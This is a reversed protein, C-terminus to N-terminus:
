IKGKTSINNYVVLSKNELYVKTKYHAPKIPLDVIVLDPNVHDKVFTKPIRENTILVKKTPSYENVGQEKIFANAEKDKKYRFCVAIDNQNIGNAKLKNVWGELQESNTSSVFIITTSTNKIISVLDEFPYRRFDVDVQTEDSLTIKDYGTQKNYLEIVSDDYALCGRKRAWLVAKRVDTINSLETKDEDSLLINEVFFNDKYKLIPYYQLGEKYVKLMKEYAISVDKDISFNKGKIQKFLFDVNPENYDFTWEKTDPLYDGRKYSIRKRKKFANVLDPMFPSKCIIKEGDIYVSKTKDIVRFPNKYIKEDLIKDILFGANRLASAYKKLLREAIVSQKQTLALGNDLQTALSRTIPHDYAQISISEFDNFDTIRGGGLYLLADEICNTYNPPLNTTNSM